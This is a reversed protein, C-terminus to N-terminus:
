ISVILRLGSRSANAANAPLVISKGKGVPADERRFLVIRHLRPETMPAFRLFFTM